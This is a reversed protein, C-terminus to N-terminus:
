SSLYRKRKNSKMKSLDALFLGDICDSFDPDINFALLQFGGHEFLAAYQKFLIPMKTNKNSFANQLKKLGSEFNDNEYKQQLILQTELPLEYPMKGTAYNMSGTYFRTYYYVLEDVLSKEYDASISVPGILYRIEPHHNLYAGIGQWLYDLSAKGWYNPNVFSRGLEATNPLIKKLNESFHFLSTTYLGRLGAYSLIKACKGIRYSGAVELQDHNWLILHEYYQDYGDIDRRSGTGEGVKRFTLERLRGIERMLVQHNFDSLFISNHDRTEGLLFTNKLENQLEKRDEPHAVTRLTEFNYKKNRGLKYVHKKLRKILSKDNLEQSALADSPIPEGIKFEILASRKNFMERALLMTGLPKFLMSASYFLLSNKAKIHIPLVPASAKRAFSLFGPRWRVDKVGIPSARSVEGAPFIIVAEENNLANLVCKYSKRPSGGTMNDLPILLSQINEFTMLMDNAVIKVDRRVESILRLIALGDLSGIPHNAIIVVRGQSPINQRDRASVRYSFNFYEFVQDIFDLGHLHGHAELFRNIEQEHTLKRLISLTPRRILPPQHAFGPFKNTVAQEIDIM